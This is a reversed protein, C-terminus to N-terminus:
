EKELAQSLEELKRKLNEKPVVLAFRTFEEGTIDMFWIGVQGPEATERVVVRYRKGGREIFRVIQRM